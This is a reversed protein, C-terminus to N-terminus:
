LIEEIDIDGRFCEVLHFRRIIHNWKILVVGLFKNPNCTYVLMYIYKVRRLIESERIGRCLMQFNISYYWANKDIGYIPTYHRRSSRTTFLSSLNQSQSEGNGKMVLYFMKSRIPPQLYYHDVDTGSCPTSTYNIYSIGSSLSSMSSSSSVSTTSPTPSPYRVNSSTNSVFFISEATRNFHSNLHALYKNTIAKPRLGIGNLHIFGNITDERTLMKELCEFVIQNQTLLANLSKFNDPNGCNQLYYHYIKYFSLRAKLLLQAEKLNMQFSIWEDVYMICQSNEHAEM